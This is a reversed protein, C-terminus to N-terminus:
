TKNRFLKQVAAAMHLSMVAPLENQTGDEYVLIIKCDFRGIRKIIANVTKM